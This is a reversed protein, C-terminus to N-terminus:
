QSQQCEDGPSRPRHPVSEQDTGPGPPRMGGEDLTDFENGLGREPNTPLPQRVLDAAFNPREPNDLCGWGPPFRRWCTPYYGFYQQRYMKYIPPEAECPPRHRKWTPLRPLLQAEALAPLGLVLAIAWAAPSPRRNRGMMGM